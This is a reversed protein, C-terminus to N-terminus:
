TRSCGLKFPKSWLRTLMHFSYLAFYSSYEKANGKKSIPIFISMKWDQPWQQTKWIQQCISHLVKVADDELIKILAALIGFCISGNSRLKFRVSTIDSHAHTHTHAHVRAYLYKTM